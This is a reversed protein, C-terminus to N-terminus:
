PFRTIEMVGFYDGYAGQSPQTQNIFAEVGVWGHFNGDSDLIQMMPRVHSNGTYCYEDRGDAHSTTWFWLTDRRDQADLNPTAVYYELPTSSKAGLCNGGGCVTWDTIFFPSGTGHDIFPDTGGGTKWIDYTHDFTTHDEAAIAEPSVHDDLGAQSGYGYGHTAGFSSGKYD